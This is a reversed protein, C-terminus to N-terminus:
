AARKGVDADSLPTTSDVVHSDDAGRHGRPGRQAMGQRAVEGHLQYGPERDCVWELVLAAFAPDDAKSLADLVKTLKLLREERRGLSLARQIRTVWVVRADLRSAWEDAPDCGSEALQWGDDPDALAAWIRREAVPRTPPVGDGGRQEACRGRVLWVDRSNVKWYCETFPDEPVQVALGGIVATKTPWHGAAARAVYHQLKDDMTRGPLAKRTVPDRDYFRAQLFVCQLRWCEYAAPHDRRVNGRRKRGTRCVPPKQGQERAVMERNAAREEVVVEDPTKM